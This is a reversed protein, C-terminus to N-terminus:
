DDFDMLIMKQEWEDKEILLSYLLAKAEEESMEEIYHMLKLEQQYLREEEEREVEMVEEFFREAEDPFVTFYLAVIHKCVALRGSAHPCTCKSKRPHKLDLIVDYKNNGSGNVNSQYKFDDIKKVNHVQRREYYDFGRLISKVSAADLVSM